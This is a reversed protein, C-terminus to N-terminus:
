PLYVPSAFAEQIQEQPFERFMTINDQITANFVFVNQQIMNEMAYLNKSSIERLETEDYCIAGDYNTYSAM